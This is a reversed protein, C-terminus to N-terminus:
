LKQTITHHRHTHTYIYIYASVRGGEGLHTGLGGQADDAVGHVAGHGNGGLHVAPCPHIGTFYEPDGGQVDHPGVGENALQLADVGGLHVAGDNPPVRADGDDGEDGLAGRLDGEWLVM